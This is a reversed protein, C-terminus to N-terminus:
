RAERYAPREYVDFRARSGRLSFTPRPALLAPARPARKIVIRAIPADWAAQALDAADPDGGTLTRLQQMAAKAKARHGDDVFMPDLYVADHQARQEPVQALWARADTHILRLRDAVAPHEALAAALAQAVEAQRELMTVEAGLSALVFADRGLGATADVIRQTRQKHLGLARALPLAPGAQICRQVVAANWDILVAPADPM